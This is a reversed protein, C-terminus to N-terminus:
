QAPPQGDFSDPVKGLQKRLSRFLIIAAGVLFLFSLTGLVGPTVKSTDVPLSQNALPTPSSTLGILLEAIV